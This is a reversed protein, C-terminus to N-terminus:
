RLLSVHGILDYLKNTKGDKVTLKWTYVGDQSVREAYTGNWGSEPDHSEFIMEGWRNFIAFEFLTIESSVPFRPLFEQNLNDGDPTFANPVYIAFEDEILVQMCLEDSCGLYNTATLCVLVSEGADTNSFYMTPNEESSSGYDEFEWSYTDAYLSTNTFSVEPSIYTPNLPSYYYSAVPNEIVCFADDSFGSIPCGDASELEYTVSYCGPETFIASITDCGNVTTGDSFIWQCNSTIGSMDFTPYLVVEMPSCGEDEEVAFTVTPVQFVSVNVTDIITECFDDVSVIYTNNQNASVSIGTGSGITTGNQTWIYDYTPVGSNVQLFLNVLEGPCVITDNSVTVMLTDYIALQTNDVNSICGNADQAYVSFTSDGVPVVIQSQSSTENNWYYTYPQTGGFADAYVYGDSGLCLTSDPGAVVSLLPPDTLVVQSITSICGDANQALIDYSGQCLTNIANSPSYSIGGDFSFMTAGSSWISIEGDCSGSCLPNSATLSDILLPTPQNIVFDITDYCGNDDLVVSTYQGSCLDTIQSNNPSIPVVFWNYTYAGSATGGQAFVEASGDCSEFCIADNAVINTIELQTPQTLVVQTLANCNNADQVYLDYTGADLLTYYDNPSLSGGGTISYMYPQTGGSVMFDIVGTGNEFCTLNTQNSNLVLPTPQTIITPTPNNTLCANDDIISINYTGSCLDNFSNSTQFAGGISYQITGTGGTSTITISGDCSGACLTNVTSIGTIAPSPQSTVIEQIVAPCGLNDQAYMTYAGANLGGFNPNTSYNINDISYVYNPTGGSASLTISGNPLDCTSPSVSTSLVLAPPSTITNNTLIGCGNNDTVEITYTGQCLGGIVPNTLLTTGNDISYTYQPTGGGANIQIEGDCSGFCTVPQTIYSAVLPSPQSLVVTNSSTCGVGDQVIVDYSGAPLGFFFNVSGFNDGNDISYSYNGQGGQGSLQIIGTNNSFCTLNTATSQFTVPSPQGVFVSNMVICNNEDMVYVVYDGSVLGTFLNSSQFTFGDISYQYAGTGGTTSSVVIQGNNGGNCTPNTITTEFEILDPQTTTFPITFVCFGADYITVIHSGAELNYFIGNSQTVGNNDLEFTIPSAGASNIVSVFGDSGGFCSVHGQDILTGDMEIDNVGFFVQSQCGNADTAIISYAGAFLNNFVGTSQPPLSGNITYTFPTNVGNALVELTGDNFGCNSPTTSILDIGFTPPDVLVQTSQLVCGNADSVSVTHSGACLGSLLPASQFASGDVSFTYSPTGGSPTVNIEGDCSGFCIPNTLSYNATLAPPQTVIINSNTICGNADQVVVPITGACLSTLNNSPGFTTGGNSSYSYPTTGGSASVNISGDCIEFCSANQVNTSFVLQPPSTINFVVIGSCGANDTVVVEYTGSGLNNFSNSLQPAGGNLSYSYPLVGGTANIIASGNLGGFCTVNQLSAVTATMESVTITMQDTAIPCDGTNTTTLTLTVSGALIESASLTYNLTLDTNDTSYTGNGGSWIGTTVGTVSGSIAVDSAIAQCVTLDSGANATIPNTFQIVTVQDTAVPCGTADTVTVTYTGGSTVNISSTTQGNSWSYTYPALGGTVNATLTEFSQGYCLYPSVPSISVDLEPVISVTVTDCFPETLCSAVVNGCVEYQITSPSGVTPTVNVDNFGNFPVGSSGFVTGSTNSLINNYQGSTGPSISNWSISAPDVGTVSLMEACGEATLIDGSTYPGPVSTIAYENQNNGVKCYSIYHPGPGSLCIPAGSTPVPVDQCNIQFYLSGGPNAGSFVSFNIGVASPDLTISMEICNVQNAGGGCCSGDRVVAPSIWTGSPNGTLDVSFFPTEGTCYVQSIANSILLSFIVSIFVTQSHILLNRKM